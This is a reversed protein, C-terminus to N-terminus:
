VKTYYSDFLSGETWGKSDDAVEKKRGFLELIDIKDMVSVMM